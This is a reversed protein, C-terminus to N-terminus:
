IRRCEATMGRQLWRYAHLGEGRNKIDWLVFLEAGGVLERQKAIAIEKGTCLRRGQVQQPCGSMVAM